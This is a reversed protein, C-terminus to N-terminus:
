HRFSTSKAKNEKRFRWRGMLSQGGTVSLWVHSKGADVADSDMMPVM